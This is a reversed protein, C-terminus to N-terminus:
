KNLANEMGAEADSMWGEIEAQTLDYERAAEPVQDTGM